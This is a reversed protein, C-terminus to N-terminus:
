PTRVRYFKNTSSLNETFVFNTPTLAASYNSVSTWSGPDVNGRAEVAYTRNAEANFTFRIQNAARMPQSITPHQPDATPL